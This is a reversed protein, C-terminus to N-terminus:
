TMSSGQWFSMLCNLALELAHKSNRMIMRRSSKLPCRSAPPILDIKKTLKKNGDCKQWLTVIIYRPNDRLTMWQKVWACRRKKARYQREQEDIEDMIDMMQSVARLQQLANQSAMKRFCLNNIPNPM